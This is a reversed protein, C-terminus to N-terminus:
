IVVLMPDLQASWSSPNLGYRYKVFLSDYMNSIYLAFSRVVSGYTVTEGGIEMRTLVGEILRDSQGNQVQSPM